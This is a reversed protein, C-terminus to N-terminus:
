PLLRWSTVSVPSPCERLCLSHVASRTNSLCRCSYHHWVQHWCWTLSSSCAAGAKGSGEPPWGSATARSIVWFLDPGQLLSVSLLGSVVLEGPIQDLQGLSSSVWDGTEQSLLECEQSHNQTVPHPFPSTHCASPLLQELPFFCLWHLLVSLWTHTGIDGPGIFLLKLWHRM